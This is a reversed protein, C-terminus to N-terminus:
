FIKMCIFIFLILHNLIKYIGFKQKYILSISTVHIFNNYYFLMTYSVVITIQYTCIFHM